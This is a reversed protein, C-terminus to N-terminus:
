IFPGAMQAEKEPPLSKLLDHLTRNFRECQPNGQPHHPTTCTKKVGYLKCLDAIVASEFNRGQDSHLRQPVGYKLFWERFLIKATTEAKQDRTPFAQSFKTFVDTVVLVHERGDTAPELTTFDVAVVELPRSALFSAWPAQTDDTLHIEHKVRDTYGLDEDCVAFVDAHKMLLVGLKEQQKPIGGIHLRSLLNTPDSDSMPKDRQDIRVEEHDASIRQFRVECVDSEACQCHTLLGLRVKPPLWVDEQSFDVQVPFVRSQPSVLTPMPILRDPLPASWTGATAM